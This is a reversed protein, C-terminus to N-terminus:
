SVKRHCQQDNVDALAKEVVYLEGIKSIFQSALHRGNAGSVQEAEVFKRRAHAFCGINKVNFGVARFANYGSYGDTQLLGAFGLLRENV